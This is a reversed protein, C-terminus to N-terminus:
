KLRYRKKIDDEADSKELCRWDEDIKAEKFNFVKVLDDKYKATFWKWYPAIATGESIHWDPFITRYKKYPVPKHNTEACKFTTESNFKVSNTCIDLVMKQDDAYRYGGLCRPRHLECFHDHGRHDKDTMECQEKCFPCQECCGAVNDCIIEAIKPVLHNMQLVHSMEAAQVSKEEEQIGKVFEDTFTRLRKKGQLQVLIRLEKNFSIKGILEKQFCQLWSQINGTDSSSDFAHNSADIIFNVVCKLEAEAFTVIKKKGGVSQKCHEEVFVTIWFLYSLQIKTLYLKYDDFDGKELLKLLVKGKLDKKCSFNPNNMRADDAVKLILKDRLMAFVQKMVSEVLVLATKKEQATASCLAEFELKYQKSLSQLYTVPHNDIAECQRKIFVSLAYGAVELIMDVIYQQTFSCASLNQESHKIRETLLRVLYTIHGDDYSIDEKHLYERIERFISETVTTVTLLDDNSLFANKLKDILGFNLHKEEDIRLQLHSMARKALSYEKLERVIIADLQLLQCKTRLCQVIKDDLNEQKMIPHEGSVEDMWEKWHKDFKLKIVGLEQQTLDRDTQVVTDSVLRRLHDDFRDRANKKMDELKAKAQNEKMVNQCFRSANEVHDARLCKLKEEYHARWQEMIPNDFFNQFEKMIKDYECDFQKTVDSVLHSKLNEVNGNKRVSQEWKLKINELRWSWKGYEKDLAAFAEVELINKFSFIFNEELVAKWLQEVKSSFDSVHCLLEPSQFVKILKHQLKQAAECYAPNVPAMPPNGVWLSPFNEIDTENNFTIVDDFCQYQCGFNETKAALHTMEDLQNQLRQSGELTKNGSVIAVNQRAFQCSPKLEVQKMRLFAHVSTQLVDNMEAAVEGNINVITMNALGIVLAALENDHQQTQRYDLEPARLGETDIVLLHQCNPSSTSQVKMLQFFAGRTCRGASVAFRIGFMINMLTSKGSSQVGLVSLVAIKANKLRQKAKELIATIWQLPIHSADGDIIELPYGLLFIDTTVEALQKMEQIQQPQVEKQMEMVSEYMQGLERFLHEIGFSANVLKQDCIKLEQRIIEKENATLHKNRLTKRASNCKLQLEPLVKRSRDDLYMKLWELFYLTVKMPQELLVKIFVDMVISRNKKLQDRRVKEKEKKMKQYFQEPGSNGMEEYKMRNQKKNFSAWKHWLDPGQLPLQTKLKNPDIGEIKDMISMALKKGRECSEMIKEDIIIDQTPAISSLRFFSGKLQSLGKTIKSRINQVVAAPEKGSLELVICNPILAKLKEKAHESYKSMLFLCQRKESKSAYLMKEFASIDNEALFVVLMCSHSSIFEFQHKYHSVNGRLNAFMIIDNFPNTQMNSPLYWCAEVLGNFFHRNVSSGMCDYNFFFDHKSESMVSNLIKSKSFNGPHSFRIFSILPAQCDVMRGEHSTVSSSWEKVISRLSWLPLTLTNSELDPLLLPVALQSESLKLYLYQRLFNDSCYILALISDMPHVLIEPLDDDDSVDSNENKKGFHIIEKFNCNSKKIKELILLLLKHPDTTCNNNDCVVLSENDRVVLSEQLTLQQPYYNLFSLKRLFDRYLIPQVPYEQLKEGVGPIREKMRGFFGLVKNKEIVLEQGISKLAPMTGKITKVIWSESDHSSDLVMEKMEENESIRQSEAVGQLCVAENTKMQENNEFPILPLSNLLQPPISETSTQTDCNPELGSEQLTKVMKENEASIQCEAAGQRSVAENNKIQEKYIEIPIPLSNFLPMTAEDPSSIKALNAKSHSGEFHMSEHSSKSTGMTEEPIQSEQTEVPLPSAIDSESALDPDMSVSASETCTDPEITVEDM